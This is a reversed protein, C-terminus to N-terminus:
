YIALFKVKYDVPKKISFKLMSTLHMHLDSETLIVEQIFKTKKLTQFIKFCSQPLSDVYWHRLLTMALEAPSMLKWSTNSFSAYLFPNQSHSCCKVSEREAPIPVAKQCHLSTVHLLTNKYMRGHLWIM